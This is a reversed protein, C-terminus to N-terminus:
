IIKNSISFVNENIYVFDRDLPAIAKLFNASNAARPLLWDHLEIILLPFKEIWSTNESFLNSEFGEIDIKIIFPRYLPESFHSLVDDVTIINVAGDPDPTVQFAANGGGGDLVKCAGGTSGIANNLFVVNESSNNKRAQTLNNSEPEICIIKADPFNESFYKAAFGINGGCDLILPALDSKLAQDYFERLDSARNLRDIDYDNNRYIQKLMALDQRNRVDSFIVKQLKKDFILQRKFQKPSLFVYRRTGRFFVSALSSGITQIATMISM